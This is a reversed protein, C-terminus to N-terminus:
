ILGQARRDHLKFRRIHRYVNQYSTNLVQSTKTINWDNEDLAKILEKEKEQFLAERMQRKTKYEALERQIAPYVSGLIPASSEVMKKEEVIVKGIIEDRMGSIIALLLKGRRQVEVDPYSEFFHENQIM